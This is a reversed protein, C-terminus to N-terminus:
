SRCSGHGFLFCCSSGVFGVIIDLVDRFAEGDCRCRRADFYGGDSGGGRFLVFLEGLLLGLSNRLSRFQSVARQVICGGFLGFLLFLGGFTAGGATGRHNGVLFLGLLLLFAANRATATASAAALRILQRRICSSNDNRKRGLLFGFLLFPGAAAVTQRRRRRRPFLVPPLAFGRFVGLQQLVRRVVVLLLERRLSQLWCWLYWLFYGCVCVRVKGRHYGISKRTADSVLWNVVLGFQRCGRGLVGQIM